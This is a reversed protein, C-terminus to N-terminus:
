ARAPSMAVTIAASSPGSPTPANRTHPSGDTYSEISRMM